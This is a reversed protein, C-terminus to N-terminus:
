LPKRAPRKADGTANRLFWSAILGLNAAADLLYIPRIRGKAAYVASVSALVSSTGIALWRIEATIRDGLSASALVLGVVSLLGGVTRVLWYDVKAGTVAEFSRRGSVAWLGGGLFYLAQVLAIARRSHTRLLSM